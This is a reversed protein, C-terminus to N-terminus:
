ASIRANRAESTSIEVNIAKTKHVRQTNQHQRNTRRSPPDRTASANKEQIPEETNPHDTAQTKTSTHETRRGQKQTSNKHNNLQPQNTASLERTPRHVCDLLSCFLSGGCLCCACVPYRCVLTVRFIVCSVIICEFILVAFSFLYLLSLWGRVTFVTYCHLLVARCPFKTCCVLWLKIVV